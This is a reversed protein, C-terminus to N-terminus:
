RRTSYPMRKLTPKGTNGPQLGTCSPSPQSAPESATFSTDGVRGSTSRAMQMAWARLLSSARKGLLVRRPLETFLLITCGLAELSVDRKHVAGRRCVRLCVWPRLVRYGYVVRGWAIAALLKFWCATLLLLARVEKHWMRRFFPKRWGLTPNKTSRNCGAWFIYRAICYNGRERCSPSYGPGAM